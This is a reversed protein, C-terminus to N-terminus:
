FSLEASIQLAHVGQKGIGLRHAERQGAHAIQPGAAFPQLRHDALELLVAQPQQAGVQLRVARVGAM